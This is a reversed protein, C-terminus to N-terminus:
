IWLEGLGRVPVWSGGLDVIDCGQQVHNAQSYLDAQKVLSHATYSPMVEGGVWENEMQLSPHYLMM